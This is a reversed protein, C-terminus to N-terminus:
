LNSLFFFTRGLALATFCFAHREVLVQGGKLGVKESEEMKVEYCRFRKMASYVIYKYNDLKTKFSAFM